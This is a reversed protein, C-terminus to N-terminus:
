RSNEYFWDGDVYVPSIKQSVEAGHKFYDGAGVNIEAAEDIFDAEKDDVQVHITIRYRGEALPLKNFKFAVVGKPNPLPGDQGTYSSYNSLIPQGSVSKATFGINVKQPTQKEAVEYQFIFQCNDGSKPLKVKQNKSNEIWFGTIRVDGSGSHKKHTLNTKIDRYVGSIYKSIVERTNGYAAVRGNELLLTKNCLVEVAAMNHSVFLVTRDQNKVIDHM